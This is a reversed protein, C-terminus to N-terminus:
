KLEGGSYGCDVLDNYTVKEDITYNTWEKKRKVEEDVYACSATYGGSFIAGIM